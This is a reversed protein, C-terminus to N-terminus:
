SSCIRPCAQLICDFMSVYISEGIVDEYSKVYIHPKLLSSIEPRMRHKEKLQHFEIGNKILREFLSIWTIIPPSNLHPM